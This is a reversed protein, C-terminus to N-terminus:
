AAFGAVAVVTLVFVPDTAGPAPLTFGIEVSPDYARSRVISVAKEIGLLGPAACWDSVVV